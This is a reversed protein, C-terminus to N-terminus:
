SDDEGRRRDRSDIKKKNPVFICKRAYNMAAGTVAGTMGAFPDINNGTRKIRRKTNRKERNTPKFEKTINEIADPTLPFIAFMPAGPPTPAHPSANQHAIPAVVYPSLPYAAGPVHYPIPVAVSSPSAYLPHQPAISPPNQPHQPALSPPFLQDISRPYPPYQYSSASPLPYMPHQYPHTVSATYAPHQYRHVQSQPTWRQVPSVPRSAIEDDLIEGDEMDVDANSPVTAGKPQQAAGLAVDVPRPTRSESLAAEATSPPPSSPRSLVEADSRQLRQGAALETSPLEMVVDSNQSLCFENAAPPTMSRTRGPNPPPNLTSSTEVTPLSYLSTAPVQFGKQPAPEPSPPEMVMDSNSLLVTEQAAGAAVSALPTSMTQRSTSETLPRAIDSRPSRQRMSVAPTPSENMIMPADTAPVQSQTSTGLRTQAAFNADHSWTDAWGGQDGKSGQEGWGGQDGWGGQNDGWITSSDGWPASCDGWLSVPSSAGQGSSSAGRSSSAGPRRSSAGTRLSSVGAHRLSSSKPDRSPSAEVTSSLAGQRWSPVGMKVSSHRSFSTGSSLAIKTSSERTTSSSAVRQTSEESKKSKMGAWGKGPAHSKYIWTSPKSKSPNMYCTPFPRGWEDSGDPRLPAVFKLPTMFHFTRGNERDFWVDADRLKSNKGVVYLRRPKWQPNVLWKDYDDGDGDDDQLNPRPSRDSFHMQETPYQKQIPPPKPRLQKSPRAKMRPIDDDSSEPDSNSCAPSPPLPLYTQGPPRDPLIQSWSGSLSRPNPQAERPGPYGYGRCMLTNQSLGLTKALKDFPNDDCARKDVELLFSCREVRQRREVPGGGDDYFDITPIYEHIIFCPVGVALLIDLSPQSLHNVWGGMFLPSGDPSNPDPLAQPVGHLLDGRWSELTRLQVKYWEYLASKEKIFRQLKAMRDVAVEWSSPACATLIDSETPSSTWASHSPPAANRKRYVGKLDVRRAELDRCRQILRQTFQPSPSGHNSDNPHTPKWHETLAFWEPYDSRRRKLLAYHITEETLVQPFLGFDARGESGDFLRDKVFVQPLGPYSALSHCNPSWIEMRQGEYRVDTGVYTAPNKITTTM